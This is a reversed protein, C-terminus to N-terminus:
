PTTERHQALAHALVAGAIEYYPQRRFENLRSWPVELAEQDFSFIIAAIEQVDAPKPEFGFADDFMKRAIQHRALTPPDPVPQTPATRHFAHAVAVDLPDAKNLQRRTM